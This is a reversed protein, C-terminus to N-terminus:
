FKYLAGIAFSPQLQRQVLPSDRPPTGVLDHLGLRAVLGWHNGVQYVAAATVGVDILGAGPTYVPLPNGVAATRASDTSTIGFFAQQYNKDAWNMDTSFSLHLDQIPAVAYTVGLSGKTGSNSGVRRDIKAQVAFPRFSYSLFAGVAAATGIDPLGNLHPDDSSTRGGSPGVNLGGRFGHASFLNVGLGDLSSLYLRGGLMGRIDVYPFPSVKWKKSGDYAPSVLPGFGVIASLHRSLPGADPTESITMAEQDLATQREAQVSIEQSPPEEQAQAGASCSLFAM